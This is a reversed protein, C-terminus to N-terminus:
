RAAGAIAETERLQGILLQRPATAPRDPWPLISAFPPSPADRTEAGKSEGAILCAAQDAIFLVLLYQLAERDLRLVHRDLHGPIHHLSVTAAMLESLGWHQLAMRGDLM